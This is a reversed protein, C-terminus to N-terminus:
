NKLINLNFYLLNIDNDNFEEQINDIYKKFIILEDISKDYLKDKLFNEIKENIKDFELDSTDKIIDNLDNGFPINQLSLELKDFDIQNMKESFENRSNELSQLNESIKELGNFGHTLTTYKELILTKLEDDKDHVEGEKTMLYKKIQILPYSRFM